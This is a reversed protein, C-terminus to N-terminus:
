HIDKLPVSRLNAVEQEALRTAKRLKAMECKQSFVIGLTALMGLIAGLIIAVVVALSLAIEISGFYYNLEINQANMLAFTLGLLAVLLMLVVNIIRKM